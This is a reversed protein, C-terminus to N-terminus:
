VFLFFPFFFCCCGQLQLNSSKVHKLFAPVNAAQPKVACVDSAHGESSVAQSSHSHKSVHLISVLPTISWNSSSLSTLQPTGVQSPPPTEILATFTATLSIAVPVALGNPSYNVGTGM